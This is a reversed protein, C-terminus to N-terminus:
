AQFVPEVSRKEFHLKRSPRSHSRLIVLCDPAEPHAYRYSVTTHVPRKTRACLELVRFHLRIVKSETLRTTPQLERRESERVARGSWTATFM